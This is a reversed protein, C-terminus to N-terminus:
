PKGKKARKSKPSDGPGHPLAVEYGLPTELEAKQKAKFERELKSKAIWRKIVPLSEISRASSALPASSKIKRDKAM